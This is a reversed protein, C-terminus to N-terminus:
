SKKGCDWLGVASSGQIKGPTRASGATYLMLGEFFVIADLPRQDGAELWSFVVSTGRHKTPTGALFHGAQGEAGAPVAGAM